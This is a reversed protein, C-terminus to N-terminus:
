FTVQAGAIQALTILKTKVQTMGEDSILLAPNVKYYIALKTVHDPNADARGCEYQTLRGRPIGLEDEVEHQQKNVAKRLERLKNKNVPITQM